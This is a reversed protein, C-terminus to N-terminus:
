VLGRETVEGQIGVFREFDFYREISEEELCRRISSELIGCVHTSWWCGLELDRVNYTYSALGIHAKM